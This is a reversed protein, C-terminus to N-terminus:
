PREPCSHEGTGLLAIPRLFTLTGRAVLVPACALLSGPDDESRRGYAAVHITEGAAAVPVNAFGVLGDVNTREQRPDFRPFADAYLRRAGGSGIEVESGDARFLRVEIGLVTHFACDTVFALIAASDADRVGGGSHLAIENLSAESPLRIETSEYIGYIVTDLYSSVAIASKRAFARLIFPAGSPVSFRVRGSANTFIDDDSCEDSLHVEGGYVRVCIQDLGGFTNWDTLMLTLTVPPGPMPPSRVFLCSWDPPALDIPTRTTFDYGRAIMAVPLATPPSSADDSSSADPPGEFSGCAELFAVALVCRWAPAFASLRTPM